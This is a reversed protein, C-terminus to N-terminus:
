GACPWAGAGYKARRWAEPAINAAPYYVVDVPAIEQPHLLGAVRLPKSPRAQEYFRKIEEIEGSTKTLFVYEEVAAHTLFGRLFSEGAVRRGNIGKADPRYGDTAYFIAANASRNM